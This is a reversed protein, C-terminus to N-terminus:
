FPAKESENGWPDKGEVTRTYVVSRRNNFLSFFAQRTNDERTYVILQCEFDGIHFQVSSRRSKGSPSDKLLGFHKLDSANHLMENTKVESREAKPDSVFGRKIHSDIIKEMNTDASEARAVITNLQQKALEWESDYKEPDIGGDSKTPLTFGYQKEKQALLETITRM